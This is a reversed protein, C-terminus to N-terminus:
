HQSPSVLWCQGCCASWGQELVQLSSGQLLGRGPDERRGDRPGRASPARVRPHGAQAKLTVGRRRSPTPKPLEARLLAGAEAELLQPDPGLHPSSTIGTENWRDFERNLHEVCVCRGGSGLTCPRATRTEEWAWLPALLRPLHWAGAPAEPVSAAPLRGPIWATRPCDRAGPMHEAPLLSAGVAWSVSASSGRPPRPRLAQSPQPCVPTVGLVKVSM